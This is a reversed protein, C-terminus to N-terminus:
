FYYSLKYANKCDFLYNEGRELVFAFFIRYRPFLSFYIDDISKGRCFFILIIITSLICSMCSCHCVIGYM